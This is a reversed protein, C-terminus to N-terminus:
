QNIQTLNMDNNDNLVNIIQTLNEQSLADVNLQKNKKNGNYFAWLQFLYKDDKKGTGFIGYSTKLYMYVLKNPLIGESLEDKVIIDNNIKKEENIKNENETEKKKEEKIPQEKIKESNSTPAVEDLLLIHGQYTVTLLTNKWKKIIGADRKITTKLQIYNSFNFKIIPPVLDDLFSFFQSTRKFNHLNFNTIEDIIKNKGKLIQSQILIDRYNLLLHNMENRLKTEKAFEIINKISLKKEINKRIDQEILKDLNSIMSTSLINPNIIFRNEDYYIKIMTKLAELYDCFLNTSDNLLVEIDKLFKRIKIFAKNCYSVLDYEIFLFDKMCVLDNFLEPSEKQKRDKYYCFLQEYEKKYKNMLKDRRHELKSTLKEMNRENEWFKPEVAEVKNYLPKNLVNEKLNNTIISFIDAYILNLKEVSKNLDFEVNMLESMNTNEDETSSHKISHGLTKLNDSFTEFITVLNKFYAFYPKIDKLYTCTLVYYFPQSIKKFTQTIFYLYKETFTYINILEDIKKDYLMIVKMENKALKKTYSMNKEFYPMFTKITKNDFEIKPTKEQNINENIQQQKNQTEVIQNQEKNVSKQIENIKIENKNQNKKNGETRVVGSNQRKSITQEVKSSHTTTNKSNNDNQPNQTKSTLPRTATNSKGSKSLQQNAKQNLSTTPIQKKTEIKNAERQKERNIQNNSSLNQSRKNTNKSDKM